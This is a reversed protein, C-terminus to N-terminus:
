TNSDDSNFNASNKIIFDLEPISLLMYKIEDKSITPQNQSTHDKIEVPRSDPYSKSNFNYFINPELNPKIIFMDSRELAKEAEAATMLGEHQKEGARKGIIKVSIEHSLHNKDKIIEIVASALDQIKIAPMKLIFIEQGKMLYSAKFILEVAQDITMFFRTMEPDTLTLPLGKSVQKIFLPIVSGRSGLVNGFRVSCFKTRKNGKHFFASLILREMLLKTSGMVSTPSAAKDTSIGIFKEINNEISAEILNQTGIINTKVAEFPNYECLPVHKLAAAHFVIDVDKTARLLRDKDRIDGVLYRINHAFGLEQQLEFMANEDNSLIRIVEPQHRLLKAVINSGISGTGGTVLINKGRFQNDM